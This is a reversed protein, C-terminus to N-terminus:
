TAAGELEDPDVLRTNELALNTLELETSAVFWKHDYLWNAVENVFKEQEMISTGDYMTELVKRITEPYM